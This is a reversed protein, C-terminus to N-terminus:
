SAGFSGWSWGSVLAIRGRWLMPPSGLSPMTGAAAVYRADKLHLYEYTVGDAGTVGGHEDSPRVAQAELTKSLEAPITGARPAVAEMTEASLRLWALRSVLVGSVVAGGVALTVHIEASPVDNALRALVQLIPDGGVQTVEQPETM